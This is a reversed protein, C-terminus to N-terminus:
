YPTCYYGYNLGDRDNMLSLNGYCNHSPDSCHDRANSFQKWRGDQLEALSKCLPKLAVYNTFKIQKNSNFILSTDSSHDQHEADPSASILSGTDGFYLYSVNSWEWGLGEKFAESPVFHSDGLSLLQLELKYAGPSNIQFSAEYVPIPDDRPENVFKITVPIIEPGYLRARLNLDAFTRGEHWFDFLYSRMPTCAYIPFKYKAGSRYTNTLTIHPVALVLRTKEFLLNVGFHEQSQSAHNIANKCLTEIDAGDDVISTVTIVPLFASLSPAYYWILSYAIIAYVLYNKLRRLIPRRLIIM